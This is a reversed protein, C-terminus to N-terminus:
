RRWTWEASRYRSLLGAEAARAEDTLTGREDGDPWDGPFRRRFGHVLPAVLDDPRPAKGLLEDLTAPAITPGRSGRAGAPARLAEIRRQDDRLLISGHQLLRGEVRAQASGVLKRGHASVEGPAPGMFCPGGDLPGVVGEDGVVSAGVGYASLGDVLAENIARYLARLKPRGGLPVVVAYTLEGDHLVARGGTPRRVVEIQQAALASDSWAGRAPENRGLSLTPRRWTYFRLVAEGEGLTRALAHDRAMNRAGDVPGDRLVRWRLGTAGM